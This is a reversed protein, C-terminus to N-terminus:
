GLTAARVWWKPHQRALSAAAKTCDAFIGFCTPGGGSVAAYQIGDTRLLARKVEAIVPAVSCAAADLANGHHAMFDVLATASTFPGPPPPPRSQVRLAPANLTRFVQATKDAPMPQLPNVLVATLRPVNQLPQVQDGIGTMWAASNEFCVRVDAGLSRGLAHWDVSRAHDPNARRVARLVAAADASGGGIGAAVPLNKILHVHGLNLGPAAHALKALTVDILNRGSITAGFPGSVESGVAKSTELTVEDAADRAFAVLSAIDHYGAFPGDTRRGLVDLTLNVKAPATEHFTTMAIAM